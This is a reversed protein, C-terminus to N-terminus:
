EPCPLWGMEKAASDLYAQAKEATDFYVRGYRKGKNRNGAFVIVRYTRAGNDEDAQVCVTDFTDPMYYSYAM